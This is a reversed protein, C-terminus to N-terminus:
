VNLSKVNKFPKAQVFAVKYISFITLIIQYLAMYGGRVSWETTNALHRWHPGGDLENMSEQSSGVQHLNYARQGSSGTVVRRPPSIFWCTTVTITAIPRMAAAGYISNNYEGTPAM